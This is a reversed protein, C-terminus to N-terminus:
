IKWGIWFQTTSEDTETCRFARNFTYYHGFNDEDRVSGPRPDYQCHYESSDIHLAAISVQWLPSTINSGVNGRINIYEMINCCGGCDLALMDAEIFTARMYDRYIGSKYKPFSCTARWHTASSRFHKMRQLGIRYDKWNPLMENRPNDRFFPSRFSNVNKLSYSTVLTWVSDVESEFDCYVQFPTGNEDLIEYQGNERMGARYYEMCSSARIKAKEYICVASHEKEELDKSGYIKTYGNVLRIVHTCSQEKGCQLFEKRILPAGEKTNDKKEIGKVLKFYVGTTSKLKLSQFLILYIYLIDINRWM